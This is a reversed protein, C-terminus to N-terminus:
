VVMSEKNGVYDFLSDILSMQGVIFLIIGGALCLHRVFILEPIDLVMISLNFGLGVLFLNREPLHKILLFLLSFPITLVLAGFVPFLAHVPSECRMETYTGVQSDILVLKIKTCGAMIGTLYHGLEHLIITSSATMVNLLLTILLILLPVNMSKRM